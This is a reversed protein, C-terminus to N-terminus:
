NKKKILEPNDFINGAIRLDAVNKPTLPYQNMWNNEEYGGFCYGQYQLYLKAGEWKVIFSYGNSSYQSTMTDLIDGEFIKAGDIANLGIYQSVTEPDVEVIYLNEPHGKCIFTRNQNEILFGEVWKGEKLSKGRFIIERQM